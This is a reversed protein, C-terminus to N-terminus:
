ATVSSRVALGNDAAAAIEGARRYAAAAVAASPREQAGGSWRQAAEEAQAEAKIQRAAAAVARDQASPAAPALAARIVIEMKAITEAPEGAPSVDVSVEGSVAYLRGDPGRVYRYTAPGTLAGGVARHAREHAKVEADRRRLDQLQQNEALGAQGSGPAGGGDQRGEQAGLLTGPDVLSARSGNTRAASVAV